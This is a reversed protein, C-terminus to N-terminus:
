QRAVPPGSTKLAAVLSEIKAKREAEHADLEDKRGPYSPCRHLAQYNTAIWYRLAFRRGPSQDTAFYKDVAAHLKDDPAPDSGDLPQLLGWVEDTDARHRAMTKWLEYDSPTVIMASIFMIGHGEGCLEACSGKYVGLRTPTFWANTGRGRIASKKIAFAPVWWAHTVDGSTFTFVAPRGLVLMCPEQNAVIDHGFDIATEGKYEYEWWFQHGTVKIVTAQSTDNTDVSQPSLEMNYLVRVVPVAVVILALCPVLTWITELKHNTMFTAPKRGDGRDRFKFIVILLLVQPAILFPLFVLLNFTNNQSVDHAIDSAADAGFAHIMPFKPSGDDNLAFIDPNFKEAYAQPSADAPIDVAMASRTGVILALLIFFTRVM